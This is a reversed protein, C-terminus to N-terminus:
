KTKKEGVVAGVTVNVEAVSLGTMTEIATKVRQQVEASVEHIKTGMKVAILLASTVTKGKVTVSTCKAIQKRAANSSNLRTLRLVGEAETAATGAIKTLVDDSIRVFGGAEKKIETM